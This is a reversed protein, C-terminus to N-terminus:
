FKYGYRIGLRDMGENYRNTYANSMHEFYVSLSNHGDLRYGIEAPIHFLVRAGLAKRDVNTPLLKGDHVTVGVGIGFFFGPQGAAATELQYRLDLYANSTHGSTNVNGGLAPSLTGGLIAIAPAFLLEGNIDLSSKELGFGSWLGPVDHWLAGVRVESLVEARAPAAWAAAVVVMKVFLCARAQWTTM